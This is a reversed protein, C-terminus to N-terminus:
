RAEGFRGTLLHGCCCGTTEVKEWTAATVDAVRGPGLRVRFLDDRWSKGDWGGVVWLSNSMAAMTSRSWPGPDDGSMQLTTLTSGACDVAILDSRVNNLNKSSMGGHVFIVGGIRTHGFLFRDGFGAEAPRRHLYLSRWRLTDLDLVHADDLGAKGDYGGAICLSNDFLAAGYGSRAAPTIGTTQAPFWRWAPQRVVFSPTSM